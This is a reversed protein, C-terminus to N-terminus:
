SQINLNEYKKKKKSPSIIWGACSACPSPPRHKDLQLLFSYTRLRSVPIVPAIVAIKMLDHMPHGNKIVVHIM